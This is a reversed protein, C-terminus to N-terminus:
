APPLNCHCSAYIECTGLNSDNAHRSQTVLVCAPGCQLVRRRPGLQRGCRARLQSAEDRASRSAAQRAKTCTQLSTHVCRRERRRRRPLALSSSCRHAGASGWQCGLLCCAPKPPLLRATRRCLRGRRRRRRRRRQRQKCGVAPGAGGQGSSPHHLGPWPALLGAGRLVQLARPM